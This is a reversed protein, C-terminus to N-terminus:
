RGILVVRMVVGYNRKELPSELCAKLAYRLARLRTERLLRMAIARYLKARYRNSMSKRHKAIFRERGHVYNASNGTISDGYEYRNTEPSRVAKFFVRTRLRYYLDVEQMSQMNPDFGDVLAFTDKKMLVSSTLPGYWGMELVTQLSGEHENSGDDDRKGSGSHVAVRTYILPHDREVSLLAEVQKELKQQEWTDDSDLFAILDSSAAEVGDNRAQAAGHSRDKRIVRVIGDYRNTLIDEVPRDSGDDVIIIEKPKLTQRAASDIAAQLPKFRNKVPIIVAIRAEEVNGPRYAETSM